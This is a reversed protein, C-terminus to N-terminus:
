SGPQWVSAPGNGSRRRLVSPTPLQVHFLRALFPTLPDRGFLRRMMQADGLDDTVQLAGLRSLDALPAGQMALLKQGGRARQFHEVSQGVMGPVAQEGLGATMARQYAQGVAPRIDLGVAQGVDAAEGQLHQVDRAFRRQAARGIVLVEQHDVLVARREGVAALEDVEHLRRGRAWQGADQMEELRMSQAAAPAAQALQEAHQVPLEAAEGGLPEIRHRRDAATGVGHADPKRGGAIRRRGRAGLVDNGVHALAQGDAAEGIVEFQLEEDSAVVGM